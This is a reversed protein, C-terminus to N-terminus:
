GKVNREKEMIFDIGYEETETVKCNGYVNPLDLVSSTTTYLVIFIM